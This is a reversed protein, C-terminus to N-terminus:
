QGTIALDFGATSQSKYNLHLEVAITNTGTTLATAPIQIRVPTHRDATVPPTGAYTGPGIPGTPMNSRAVEVGNIYVVAGANRILDLDLASFATPDAVTITTRYYSTLPRPAPNTTIITGKPTDGFGLEGAGSNWTTDDYGPANWTGTPADAAYWWRWTSGLALLKTDVQAGPPQVTVATSATQNRNLDFATVTYSRAATLNPSGDTFSTDTPGTVALPTGDRSILYGGLGGADTAPTWSLAVATADPATATLVPATPPTTDNTKGLLTAQLDFFVKGSGNRWGHVEATLTNTGTTLLTPPAKFPKPTTDTTGGVYATATTTNTITGTPMNWRGIETGNLYLVAGQTFKAAIDVIGIQTPDTVNFTTRFYTTTPKTAGITTTQGGGWGLTAPGTPWTTDNYTPSTWGAGPDTGTDQYRWTTGYPIPTSITTAPGTLQIPAPSASRNGRADAARVTYSLNGTAGNDITDTYTNAYTTAIVRDNRYIDYQVTGSADNSYNWSLNVTSGSATAKFNGPTTPPTSDEACFRAFGSLWDRAADGSYAGRDLAGGVWLCGNQDMSTSWVGEDYTADLASPYWSTDYEFTAENWRGVLRIPNISRFGSPSSWNNTGQYLWDSCHCAAYVYGGAIEISQTDGGQKTIHSDILTTRTSNYMQLDHESGGVLLNGAATEAVAQQYKATSGGSPQWAGLGPVVAGTTSDVIGYYGASTDGNISNFYGALYVRTGDNSVRLRVTSAHTVPRWNGPGGDSVRVNATNSVSIEASTGGKLKTFRGAAYIWQGRVDLARVILRGGETRRVSAKWSTIVDGTTPDLAVMGATDPLGNVSTFDGAVILKGDPTMVMDWVRGAFTPRFTSIWNGALDFAALSGQAVPTASPGQQVGTFRGGVYVRSGYAKLVNVTTSWPTTSEEGDHNLGVVGFPAVESRNKLTAMMPEAPYGAAPIATFGASGNAIQPRIWVRTFALATTKVTGSGYGFGRTNNTTLRRVDTVGALGNVSQGYAAASTDATNSGQYTTGDIVVKSLLQGASFSWTWVRSTPFVRYDQSASGVARELRVGDTLANLAGGNLLGTIAATSLAAPSTGNPDTRISAPSGQGDPDFSWGTQGRAVEVWGGGSTTMDCVVQIPRQLAATSVWYTGNVSSPYQQKIGWCSAGASASTTGDGAQAAAAGATDRTLSATIPVLGLLGLVAAGILAWRRNTKTM